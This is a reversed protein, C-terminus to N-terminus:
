TPDHICLMTSLRVEDASPNLATLKQMAELSPLDHIYAEAAAVAETVGGAQALTEILLQHLNGEHWRASSDAAKIAARYEAAAEQYRGHSYHVSAIEQKALSGGIQTDDRKKLAEFLVVAQEYAAISASDSNLVRGLHFWLHPSSPVVRLAERVVEEAKFVDTGDESLSTVLALLNDLNAHSTPDTNFNGVTSAILSESDTQQYSITFSKPQPKQLLMSGDASSVSVAPILHAHGQESKLQMLKLLKSTTADSNVIVVGVAGAQEAHQVKKSFTCGGRRIV